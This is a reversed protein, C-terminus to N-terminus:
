KEYVYSATSIRPVGRSEIVQLAPILMFIINLSSLIFVQDDVIIFKVLKEHFAETTFRDPRDGESAAVAAARSRAQSLIGPLTIKWGKEKVLSM